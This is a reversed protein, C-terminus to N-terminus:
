RDEKREREASEAYEKLTVVNFREELFWDWQGAKRIADEVARYFFQAKDDEWGFGLLVLMLDQRIEWDLNLILYLDCPKGNWISYIINRVKYPQGSRGQMVKALREMALVALLAAQRRQEFIKRERELAEKVWGGPDPGPDEFMEVDRIM